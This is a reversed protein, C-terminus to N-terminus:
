RSRYYSNHVHSHSSSQASFDYEWDCLASFDQELNPQSDPESKITHVPIEPYANPSPAASGFQSPSNRWADHRESYTHPYQPQPHRIPVADPATLPYPSSPHYFKPVPAAAPAEPFKSRSGSSRQSSTSTRLSRSSSSSSESKSGPKKNRKFKYDPYQVMHEQKLQEAMVFYPQKEAPSMANWVEGALKSNHEQPCGPGSYGSAKRMSVFQSRFCIFANPSRPIHSKSSSPSM